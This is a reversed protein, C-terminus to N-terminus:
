PLILMADGYSYFRYDKECALAYLAKLREVGSVQGQVELLAAVMAMLTSRPLHFNTLLGEVWRWEYGPQILLKTAVGGGMGGKGFGGAGIEEGSECRIACSEMARASTTGVAIVRGQRASEIRQVAEGTVTCWEEHMVHDELTETEVSRFTGTSVHLVVDTREVGGAKLEDMLGPSFHLGATPAAVSGAQQAYVTQYRERDVSEEVRVGAHKRARVIYPPLPALGVCGLVEVAPQQCVEGGRELVRVIWGGLESDDRKILELGFRGGGVGREGVGDLEIRVGPRLRKARLLVGWVGAEREELFLGEARGGTDRRVGQLRAPLVRTTNFVLLDDRKLYGPLDSVRVHEVREPEGRWVVMLKADERKQSPEVAICREPLEYELEDIRVSDSWWWAGHQEFVVGM